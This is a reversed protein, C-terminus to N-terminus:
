QHFWCFCLISFKNLDKTNKKKKENSIRNLFQFIILRDGKNTTKRESDDTINVLPKEISVIISSGDEQPINFVMSQIQISHLTKAACEKCTESTIISVHFQLIFKNGAIWHDNQSLILIFSKILEHKLNLWNCLHLKIIMYIIFYLIEGKITPNLLLLQM